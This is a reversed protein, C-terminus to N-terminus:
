SNITLAQCFTCLVMLHVAAHLDPTCAGVAAAAAAVWRIGRLPLAAARRAQRILAQARRPPAHRRRASCLPRAGAQPSPCPLTPHLVVLHPFSSYLISPFFTFSSYLISPFKWDTSIFPSISTRSPFRWVALSSVLVCPCHSLLRSRSGTAQELVAGNGAHRTELCAVRSM